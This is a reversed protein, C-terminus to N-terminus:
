AVQREKRESATSDYPQLFRDIVKHYQSFNPDKKMFLMGSVLLQARVLADTIMWYKEKRPVDINVYKRYEPKREIVSQIQNSLADWFDEFKKNIIADEVGKAITYSYGRYRMFEDVVGQDEPSLFNRNSGDEVSDDLTVSASKRTPIGRHNLIGSWTDNMWQSLNGANNRANAYWMAAAITIGAIGANTANQQLQQITDYDM